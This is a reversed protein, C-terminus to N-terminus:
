GAVDKHAWILQPEAAQLDLHFAVHAGDLEIVSIVALPRGDKGNPTATASGLEYEQVVASLADLAEVVADSLSEDDHHAQWTTPTPASM